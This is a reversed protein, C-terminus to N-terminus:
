EGCPSASIIFPQGDGESCDSSCTCGGQETDTLEANESTGQGADDCMTATAQQCEIVTDTAGFGHVVDLFFTWNGGRKTLMGGVQDAGTRELMEAAKNDLGRWEEVTMGRWTIEWTRPYAKGGLSLHSALVILVFAVSVVVMVVLVNKKKVTVM